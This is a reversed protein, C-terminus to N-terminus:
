STPVLTAQAVLKGVRALSAEAPAATDFELLVLLSSCVSVLGGVVAAVGDREDIFQDLLHAALTADKETGSAYLTVLALAQSAADDLEPTRWPPM